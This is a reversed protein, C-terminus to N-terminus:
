RTRCSEGRRVGGWMQVKESEGWVGPCARRQGASVMQVNWSHTIPGESQPAPVGVLAELAPVNHDRVFPQIKVQDLPCIAASGQHWGGEHGGLGTRM